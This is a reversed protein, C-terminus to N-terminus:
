GASEVMQDLLDAKVKFLEQFDPDLQYLLVYLEPSGLLIVKVNLPIPEPQLRETSLASYQEGLNEITAEGSIRARM